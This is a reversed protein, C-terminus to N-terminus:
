AVVPGGPMPSDVIPGNWQGDECVYEGEPTQIITGEAEWEEIFGGALWEIVLCPQGAYAPAPAVLVGAALAAAAVGTSLLTKRMM